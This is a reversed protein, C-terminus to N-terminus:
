REATLLKRLIESQYQKGPWQVREVIEYGYRAYYAILHTAPVATDCATYILGAATAISELRQLLEAGIGSRQHRPEVAFQGFHATDSSRYTLSIGDRIPNLYVTGTAVISGDISGLLTTGQELRRRTEVANQDVASYNMGAAGLPAYARHLLATVDDLVAPTYVWGASYESWDVQTL